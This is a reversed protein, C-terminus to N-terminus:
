KMNEMKKQLYQKRQLCKKYNPNFQLAQENWKQSNSYQQLKICVAAANNSLVSKMHKLEIMPTAYQAPPNMCTMKFAAAYVVSAAQYNKAAFMDNGIEKLKQLWTTQQRDMKAVDGAHIQKAWNIISQIITQKIDVPYFIDDILPDTVDLDMANLLIQIAQATGFIKQKYIIFASKVGETVIWIPFPSKLTELLFEKNKQKYSQQIKHANVFILSEEETPEGAYENVFKDMTDYSDLVITKHSMTVKATWM